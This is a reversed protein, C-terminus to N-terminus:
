KEDFPKSIIENSTQNQKTQWKKLKKLYVVKVLEIKADISKDTIM